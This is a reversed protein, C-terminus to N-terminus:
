RSRNRRLDVKLRGAGAVGAVGSPRRSGSISPLYSSSISYQGLSAIGLSSFGLHPLHTHLTYVDAVRLSSRHRIAYFDFVRLVVCSVRALNCQSPHKPYPWRNFHQSLHSKSSFLCSFRNKRKRQTPIEPPETRNTSQEWFIHQKCLKCTYTYIFLIYTHVCTHICICIGICIYICTIYIYIHTHISYPLLSVSECMFGSGLCRVRAHLM